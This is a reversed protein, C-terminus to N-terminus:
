KACKLTDRLWILNRKIGEELKIKPRWGLFKKAKRIDPKRRSPEEIAPKYKIKVKRNFLVSIIDAIENASIEREDNGINICNGNTGPLVLMKLTAEIADSVYCYSRTQKGSGFVTLPKGMLAQCLFKPIVRGYKDDWRLRPGFVNFYRAIRVDLGYKRYFSMSLSEGCRKSEDYVSRVTTCDVRGHYSEPTPIAKPEPEGYVESTSSFFFRADNKRALELANYTGFVNSKIIDIGYEEYLSPTALSALHIVVDIKSNTKFENTVNQKIYKFKPNKILHKIFSFMGSSLNDICVVNAGAGILCDCIYSGLFGAGGTVLCNKNEFQEKLEGLSSLIRHIDERIIKHLM